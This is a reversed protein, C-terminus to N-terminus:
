DVPDISGSIDVSESYHISYTADLNKNPETNILPIESSNCDQNEDKLGNIKEEIKRLRKQIEVNREEQEVQRITDYHMLAAKFEDIMYEKDYKKESPPASSSIKPKKRQKEKPNEIIKVKRKSEQNIPHAKQVHKQLYHLSKFALTCFQCQYITNTVTHHNHHVKKPLCTSKRLTEITNKQENNIKRLKSNEESLCRVSIQLLQFYKIVLDPPCFSPDNFLADANLFNKLIKKMVPKNKTARLVKPENDSILNWDVINMNPFKSSTAKAKKM